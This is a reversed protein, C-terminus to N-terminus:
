FRTQPPLVARFLEETVYVYAGGHRKSFAGKPEQAAVICPNSRYLPVLDCVKVSCGQERFDCSIEQEPCADLLHKELDSRVVSAGCKECNLPVM